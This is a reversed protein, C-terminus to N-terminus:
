PIQQAQVNKPNPNPAVWGPQPITGAPKRVNACLTKVGNDDALKHLDELNDLGEDIIANM